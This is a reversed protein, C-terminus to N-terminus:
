LALGMKHGGMVAGRISWTYSISFIWIEIRNKRGNLSGLMGNAIYIHAKITVNAQLTKYNVAIAMTPLACGWYVESIYSAQSPRFTQWHIRFISQILSIISCQSLTFLFTVSYFNTLALAYYLPSSVNQVYFGLFIIFPHKSTVIERYCSWELLLTNQSPTTIL